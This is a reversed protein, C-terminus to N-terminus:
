KKTWIFYEAGVTIMLPGDEQILDQFEKKTLNNISYALGLGLRAKTNLEFRYDLRGQVFFSSFSQSNIWVNESTQTQLDQPVSLNQLSVVQDFTEVTKEGRVSITKHISAGALFISKGTKFSFAVPLHLYFVGSPRLSFVEKQATFGSNRTVVEASQSIGFSGNLYSSGIGINVGFRNHIPIEAFVGLTQGRFFKTMSQNDAYFSANGYLGLQLSRDGIPPNSEEDVDQEEIDAYSSLPFNMVPYKIGAMPLNRIEIQALTGYNLKPRVNHGQEALQADIDRKNDETELQSPYFQQDQHDSLRELSEDSLTAINNDRIDNAKTVQAAEPAKISNEPKIFDDIDKVFEEPIEESSVDDDDGGMDINVKLETNQPEQREIQAQSEFINPDLQSPDTAAFPRLFLILVISAAVGVSGFWFWIAGRRKKKDKRLLELAGEWDEPDFQFSRDDLKKKFFKDLPNM